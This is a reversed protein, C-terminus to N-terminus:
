PKSHPTRFDDIDGRRISAIGAGRRNAIKRIARDDLVADKRTVIWITRDRANLAAAAVEGRAAFAMELADACYACDLNDIGAVILAGGEGLARAIRAEADAIPEASALVLGAHNKHCQFDSRDAAVPHAHSPIVTMRDSQAAVNSAIISALIGALVQRM